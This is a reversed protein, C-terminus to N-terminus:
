NPSIRASFEEFGEFCSLTPNPVSEVIVGFHSVRARLMEIKREPDFTAIVPLLLPADGLRLAAATVRNLEADLASAVLVLEGVIACTDAYTDVHDKDPM